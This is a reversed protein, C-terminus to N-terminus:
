QCRAELYRVVWWKAAALEEKLNKIYEGQTKVTAELEKARAAIKGAEAVVEEFRGRVAAVWRGDDDTSFFGCIPTHNADLVSKTNEDYAWPSPSLGAPTSM